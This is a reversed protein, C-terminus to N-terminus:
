IAWFLDPVVSNQFPALKLALNNHNRSGLGPMERHYVPESLPVLRTSISYGHDWVPRSFFSSMMKHSPTDLTKVQLPIKRIDECYSLLRNCPCLQFYKRPGLRYIPQGIINTSILPRVIDTNASKQSIYIASLFEGGIKAFIETVSPWLSM